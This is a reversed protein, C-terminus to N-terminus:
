IGRPGIRERVAATTLSFQLSEFKTWHRRRSSNREIFFCIKRCLRATSPGCRPRIDFKDSGQAHVLIPSVQEDERIQSDEWFPLRTGTGSALIRRSRASQCSAPKVPQRQGSRPQPVSDAVGRKQHCKTLANAGNCKPEYSMKGTSGQFM